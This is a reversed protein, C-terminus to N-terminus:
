IDARKGFLMQRRIVDLLPVDSLQLITFPIPDSLSILNTFSCINELYSQLNKSEIEHEDIVIYNKGDKHVLIDLELDLNYL